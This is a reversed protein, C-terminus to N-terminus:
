IEADSQPSSNTASLGQSEEALAESHRTKTMASESENDGTFSEGGRPPSRIQPRVVCTTSTRIALLQAYQPLAM